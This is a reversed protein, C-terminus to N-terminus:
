IDFINYIFKFFITNQVAEESLAGIGGTIDIILKVIITLASLLLLSKLLGLVGGLIMDTSKVLEIKRVALVARVIGKGVISIVTFSVIWLVYDIVRIVISRVTTEEIYEAAARTDGETIFRFLDTKMDDYEMDDSVKVPMSDDLEYRFSDFVSELVSNLKDSKEPDTLDQGSFEATIKEAEASIEDGVAESLANKLEDETNIITTEAASIVAERCYQDYVQVSLADSVVAAGIVALLYVALTLVTRLFGKRTGNIVGCIIIVAAIIDLIIFTRDMQGGFRM